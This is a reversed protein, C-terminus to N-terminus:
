GVTKREPLLYILRSNKDKKSTLSFFRYYFTTIIMKTSKRCKGVILNPDYMTFFWHANQSLTKCFLCYFTLRQSKFPTFHRASELDGLFRVTNDTSEGCPGCSFFLILAAKSALADLPAAHNQGKLVPEQKTKCCHHRTKKFNKNNNQLGRYGIKNRQNNFNSRYNRISKQPICIPCQNAPARSIFNNELRKGFIEGGPAM